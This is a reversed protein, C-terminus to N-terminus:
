PPLILNHHNVKTLVFHPAEARGRMELRTSRQKSIVAKGVFEKMNRMAGNECCSANLQNSAKKYSSKKKRLM